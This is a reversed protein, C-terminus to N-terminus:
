EGRRRGQTQFNKELGLESWSLLSWAGAGRTAQRAPPMWFGHGAPPQAPGTGAGLLRCPLRRARRALHEEVHRSSIDTNGGPAVTM